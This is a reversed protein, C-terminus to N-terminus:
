KKASRAASWSTSPQCPVMPNNWPDRPVGSRAVSVPSVVVKYKPDQPSVYRPWDSPKAPKEAVDPFHATVTPKAAACMPKAACLAKEDSRRDYEQALVPFAEPGYLQPLTRYSALDSPVRHVHVSKGDPDVADIVFDGNSEPDAFNSTTVEDGVCFEGPLPQDIKFKSDSLDPTAIPQRTEAALADHAASLDLPIRVAATKHTDQSARDLAQLDVRGGRNVEDFFAAVTEEEAAPLRSMIESTRRIAVLKTSFKGVAKEGLIGAAENYQALLQTTSLATLEDISLITM